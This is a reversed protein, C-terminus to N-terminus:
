PASAPLAGISEPTIPDGGKAGHTDAHPPIIEKRLRPGAGGNEFLRRFIGPLSM